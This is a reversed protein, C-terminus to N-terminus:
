TACKNLEEATEALIWATARAIIKLNVEVAAIFGPRDLYRHPVPVFPMSERDRNIVMTSVRTHGDSDLVFRRKILTDIIKQLDLLDSVAVDDGSMSLFHEVM